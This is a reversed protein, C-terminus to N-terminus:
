TIRTFINGMQATFGWIGENKLVGIPAHPYELILSSGGFIWRKLYVLQKQLTFFLSNDVSGTM